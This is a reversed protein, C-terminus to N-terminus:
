PKGAPRIGVAAAMEILSIRLDYLAQNRVQQTVIFERQVDLFDILATEGLHYSAQILDHLERSSRLYEQDIYRVRKASSDVANAAKQLESDVAVKTARELAQARRREAFARQVGAPNLSGFLPIPFSVEFDMAHEGFDRRYGWAFTVNPARLAVQLDMEAEARERTLRAAQLDPRISAADRRLSNLEATVGEDTAILGGDPGRLPPPELPDIAEFEQNLDTAGLLNLLVIRADSVALETTLVQDFFHLREVQLRRLETGAVEGANFRAETLGIVREIDKLAAGATTRNAQALVLQFYAKSVELQLQRLEDAVESRAVGIGADAAKMRHGRRGATEIEQEMRVILAQGNFFSPLSPGFISYEEGEVAIAPNPRSAAELADAEAIEVVNRAARFNPNAAEAISLADALTLKKPIEADQGPAPISFLLLTGVILGTLSM